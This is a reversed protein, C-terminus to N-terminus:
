VRCVKGTRNIIGKGDAERGPKSKNYLYNYRELNNIVIIIM